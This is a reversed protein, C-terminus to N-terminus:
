PDHLRIVMVPCDAAREHTSGCLAETVEYSLEVVRHTRLHRARDKPHSADTVRCYLLVGTRTGYVYVWTGIPHVPSSVMCGVPAMDRARAVQTMLGISYHPAWGERVEGGLLAVLTLLRLLIV